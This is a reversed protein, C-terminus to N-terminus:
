ARQHIKIPDVYSLALCYFVNLLQCLFPSWTFCCVAYRHQNGLTNIIWGLVVQDLIVKSLVETDSGLWKECPDLIAPADIYIWCAPDRRNKPNDATVELISLRQFRM